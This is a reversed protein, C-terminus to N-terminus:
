RGMEVDVHPEVVWTSGAESWMQELPPTPPLSKASLWRDYIESASIELDRPDSTHLTITVGDPATWVVMGWENAALAFPKPQRGKRQEIARAAGLYVNDIGTPSRLRLRMRAAGPHPSLTITVKGDRTAVAHVTPADIPQYAAPAADVPSASFPFDQKGITGGEAGLLGRMWADLPTLSARWAKHAAPEIVFIPEANNPHRPTWPSTLHLFAAIALSLGMLLAAPLLSAKGPPEPALLPWLVLAALMTPLVALTPLDLGVMLSHLLYGVWALTPIAILTQIARSRISVDAGGLSAAFAACAAILPWIIVYAAMPAVAQLALSAALFLLLLGAWAGSGRSARGFVVLGIVAGAVGFGLGLPNLGGFLCTAIGCILPAAAAIWRSRSRGMFAATAFLAGLAAALMMVEFTPFRALLPRYGTFSTGVGTARRALELAAGSTAILYLGAGAGRAADLWGFAGRRRAQAVGVAILAACALLALWDGAPPYAITLGFPLNGYIVDPARGPIPGFALAEATPLVQQGMHQLSGLDLTEPTSSPSHYDFQRGIFAYNLGVKGHQKAVTFDTDNTQNQYVFVTLANSEPTVATRRYLDIDGGDRAATEFMITRGGGGRAEMNIVYGVHASMPSDFFARAGLLGVEEGDTIVVIVDRKPVGKTKLARIIELASAVGATDDAAGPSGPVSDHHAMIALAPASRDRGPLLGIVNEVAGGAILPGRAEFAPARQIVPSLGLSQMRSILMDRVRADAPSGLVHPVSGMARVDAFARGASFDSAPADAPAPRPTVSGSYFLAFGAILAAALGILRGM